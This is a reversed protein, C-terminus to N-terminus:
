IPKTKHNSGEKNKRMLNLGHEKSQQIKKKKQELLNKFNINKFQSM